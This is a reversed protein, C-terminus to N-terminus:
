ENVLRKDTYGLAKINFARAFQDKLSESPAAAHINVSKTDKGTDAVVDEITAKVDKDNSPEISAQVSKSISKYFDLKRNFDEDSADACEKELLARNNDTIEIFESIKGLRSAVLQKQAMAVEKAEAIKRAEIEKDLFEQIKKAMEEAKILKEKIEENEKKLADVSATLETVKNEKASLESLKINLESQLKDAMDKDVLIPAVAAEVAIESKTDKLPEPMIIDGTNINVSKEIETTKSETSVHILISEDEKKSVLHSFENAPALTIANGGIFSKHPAISIRNGQWVGNGGNIKLADFMKDADINDEGSSILQGDPYNARGNSLFFSFDSFYCEFSLKIKNFNASNEDFNELLLETAEQANIKWAGMVVGVNVMGKGGLIEQAQEEDLIKNNNINSLYTNVCFGVIREREHEIDLPSSIGTKYMSMGEDPLIICDNKNINGITFSIGSFYLIDKKPDKPFLKAYAEQIGIESACAVLERKPHRILKLDSGEIHIVRQKKEM